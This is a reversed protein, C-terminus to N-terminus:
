SGQSKSSYIFRACLEQFQVPHLTKHLFKDTIEKQEIEVAGNDQLCAVIGFDNM